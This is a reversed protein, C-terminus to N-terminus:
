EARDFQAATAALQQLHEILFPIDDDARMLKTAKQLGHDHTGFQAAFGEPAKSYCAKFRERLIQFLGPTGTEILVCIMLFSASVDTDTEKRVKNFFVKFDELFKERKGAELCCLVFFIEYQASKAYGQSSTERTTAHYYRAANEWTAFLEPMENSNIRKLCERLLTSARDGFCDILHSKAGNPLSQLAPHHELAGVIFISFFLIM